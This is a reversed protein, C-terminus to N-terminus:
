SLDHVVPKAAGPAYSLVVAPYQKGSQDTLELLPFSPPGYRPNVKVDYGRVAETLEKRVALAAGISPVQRLEPGIQEFSGRLGADVLNQYVERLEADSPNASKAKSFLLERYADTQAALRVFANSPPLPRLRQAAAELNVTPEGYGHETAYRRAVDVFVQDQVILQRIRGQQAPPIQVGDHEIQELVQDVDTKSHATDGVFAAKGPEARCGALALVALAGAALVVSLRVVSLRRRPM